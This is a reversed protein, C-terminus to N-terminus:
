IAAHVNESRVCCMHGCLCVWEYEARQEAMM